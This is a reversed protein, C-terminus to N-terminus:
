VGPYVPKPRDGAEAQDSSATTRVVAILGFPPRGKLTEDRAALNLGAETDVIADGNV